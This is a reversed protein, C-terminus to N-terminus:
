MLIIFMHENFTMMFAPFVWASQPPLLALNSCAFGNCASIRGRSVWMSCDWDRATTNPPPLWQSAIVGQPHLRLHLSRRWLHQGLLEQGTFVGLLGAHIPWSAPGGLCCTRQWSSGPSGLRWLQPLYVSATLLGDLRHFNREWVPSLCFGVFTEHLIGVFCYSFSSNTWWVLILSLPSAGFFDLCYNIMHLPVWCWEYNLFPLSFSSLTYAGCPNFNFQRHYWVNTLVQFFPFEWM